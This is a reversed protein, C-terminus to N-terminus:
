IALKTPKGPHSLGKKEDKKLNIKKLFIKDKFM